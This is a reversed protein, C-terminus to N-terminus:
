FCNSEKIRVQLDDLAEAINQQSSTRQKIVSTSLSMSDLFRQRQADLQKSNHVVLIM